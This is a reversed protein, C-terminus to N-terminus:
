RKWEKYKLITKLISLEFLVNYAVYTYIKFQIDYYFRHVWGGFEFKVFLKNNSIQKKIKGDEM